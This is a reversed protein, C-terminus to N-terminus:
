GMSNTICIRELIDEHKLIYKGCAVEQGQTNTTTKPRVYDELEADYDTHNGFVTVEREFEFHTPMKLQSLYELAITFTIEANNQFNRGCEFMYKMDADTFKYKERAKNYGDIFGKEYSAYSQGETPYPNMVQKQYFLDKNNDDELPPLLPVGEIITSDGLPLHAIIKKQNGGNLGSVNVYLVWKPPNYHNDWTVYYDDYLIKSDDVVLLYNDIKILEKKM